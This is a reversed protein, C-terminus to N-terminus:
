KMPTLKVRQRSASQRFAAQRMGDIQRVALGQLGAPSLATVSLVSFIDKGAGIMADGDDFVIDDFYLNTTVSFTGPKHAGVIAGAQAVGGSTISTSDTAWLSGDVFLKRSTSSIM